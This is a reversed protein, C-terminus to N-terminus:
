FSNSRKMGSVKIASTQINIVSM